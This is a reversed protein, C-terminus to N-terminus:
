IYGAPGGEDGVPRLTGFWSKWDAQYVDFRTRVAEYLPQGPLDILLTRPNKAVTRPDVQILVEEAADFALPEATPAPAAKEIWYLRVPGSNPKPAAAASAPFVTALAAALTLAVLCSRNRM